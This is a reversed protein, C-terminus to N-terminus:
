RYRMARDYEDLAENGIKALAEAAATEQEETIEGPALTMAKSLDMFARFLKAFLVQRPNM